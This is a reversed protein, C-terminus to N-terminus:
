VEPEHYKRLFAVLFVIAIGLLAFATFLITAPLINRSVIVTELYKGLPFVLGVIVGYVYLRKMELFYAAASFVIIPILSFPIQGIFAHRLSANESFIYGVIAGAILTLIPVIILKSIRRRREPLFKVRGLRPAVVFRRVLLVVILLILAIPLTILASQWDGFGSRSFLAPLGLQLLFIGTFAEIFGAQLFSTFVRREIQKQDPADM